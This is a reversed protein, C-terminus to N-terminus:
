FGRNADNPVVVVMLDNVNTGTPGTRIVASRDALFPGTDNEALAHLADERPTALARTGIAGAATSGGDRGDTDVSAVTVGPETLELAAGLVLEQNPGGTGSGEVTVTTEGASVLVAPPEIPTGRTACGEAMGALVKAVERAEGRIRAGLCLPAYGHERARETAADVATNGDALVYQEVHAFGDAPESRREESTASGAADLYREVANPLDLDYREVVRIADTVTTGAPTLPGSAIVSLDNGVVDSFVLGVVTAPAAREALRGGKIESLQTRVANVERIAAGSALLVETTERLADVDLDEVPAALLASGGGGVVAIVLDDRGASDAVDLVEATAEVNRQSPTPHDGSRVRVASTAVPEDAVVVGGDIRDGLIEELADAVRGATKGGGVVVTRDFTALEYHDGNVTLTSEEFAIRDALVSTPNAARVGAEICDLAVETAPTGPLDARNRIM